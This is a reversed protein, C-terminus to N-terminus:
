RRVTQRAAYVLDRACGVCIWIRDPAQGDKHVQIPVTRPKYKRCANCLVGGCIAMSRSGIFANVPARGHLVAM